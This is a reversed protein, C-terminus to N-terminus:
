LEPNQPKVFEKLVHIELEGFRRSFRVHQEDTIHQDRFLVVSFENFTKEIEHFTADDLDVSLDIDMIEAGFAPKLPRIHM